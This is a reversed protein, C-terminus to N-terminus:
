SIVPSCALESPDFTEAVGTCLCPLFFDLVLRGVGALDADALRRLDRLARRGRDFDRPRRQLVSCSMVDYKPPSLASVDLWPQVVDFASNAHLNFLQFYGLPGQSRTYLIVKTLIRTLEM